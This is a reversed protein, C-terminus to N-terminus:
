SDSGTLEKLHQWTSPKFIDIPSHLIGYGIMMGVIFLVIMLAFIISLTIYIPVTRHVVETEGIKSVKQKYIPQKFNM